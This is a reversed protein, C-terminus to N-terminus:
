RSKELNEEDCIVGLKQLQKKPIRTLLGDGANAPAETAQFDDEQCMHRFFIRMVHAVGEHTVSRLDDEFYRAAGVPSTIIEYSPFYTVLDLEALKGAVARLVSKSHITSTLVHRNEATAILPVPSVTVIIKATSNRERFRGIFRTMDELVEVYDFNKFAHDDPKHDGAGCGPCVPYVAGDRRNIWTETLGMTFVFVDCEEIMKRVAAFHRLRDAELAERSPFPVPQIFPRYPDLFGGNVAWADDVPHFVGYARDVLQVLQRATYINGFRASFTGFGFKEQVERTFISPAAESVFYSYGADRLHRAIHQAFCSGATAIKDTRSITFSPATMPDIEHPAKKAISRSWFSSEPYTRYPCPAVNM